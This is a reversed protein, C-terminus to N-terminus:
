RPPAAKALFSELIDLFEEPAELPAMHACGPLVVTRARYLRAFREEVKPPLAADLEGRLFLTPPPTSGELGSVIELAAIARWTQANAKPDAERLLKEVAAVVEPKRRAFGPAFWRELTAELIAAMGGRDVARAREELAEAGAPDVECITDALTLSTVAAPDALFLAQAVMGGLSLGVLHATLLSRKALTQHLERAMGQISLPKGPGPSRGHGPLDVTVVRFGRALRPVHQWWIDGSTGVPHLLVLPHGQGEEKISLM